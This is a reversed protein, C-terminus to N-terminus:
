ISEERGEAERRRDPNHHAAARLLEEETFVDDDDFQVARLPASPRSRLARRDIEGMLYSFSVGFAEAIQAIQVTDPNREGLEYFRYSTRAIGTRDAVQVQSLGAAAREARLTAAVASTWRDMEEQDM